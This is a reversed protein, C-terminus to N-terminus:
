RKNRIRNMGDLLIGARYITRDAIKFDPSYACIHSHRVPSMSRMYFPLLWAYLPRLPLTDPIILTAVFEVFEMRLLVLIKRIGNLTDDTIYITYTDSCM